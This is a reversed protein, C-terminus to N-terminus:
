LNLEQNRLLHGVTVSREEVLNAITAELDPGPAGEIEVVDELGLMVNVMPYEVMPKKSTSHFRVRCHSVCCCHKCKAGLDDSSQQVVASVKPLVVAGINELQKQVWSLDDWLGSDDVNCLRVCKRPNRKTLRDFNESSNRYKVIVQRILKDKSPTVQDVMGVTWDGEGLESDVKRFYVLDGVALDRENQFWKQQMVLRPVCSDKFVKFWAANRKEVDQLIKNNDASLRVPGSVARSNNKGHRLLNPSILKYLSQNTESRSQTYGYPLNNLTNEVMKCMTQLGMSHIRMTDLGMEKLSSQVTAIRREVLGQREHGGVPCVEFVAGYETHLRYQMDRIDVEMEQMIKLIASDGDCYFLKPWTAECGLRVLAELIGRCDSKDVVQINLAKTTTCAAVLIWNKTEKAKSNRTDREFGPCFVKVPGFLDIQCCYFAPAVTVQNDAVPGMLVKSFKGRKKKCKMCESDIEKFLSFGQIIHVQEQCIRFSSEVGRHGAGHIYSAISYSLPSFRDAIPVKARLNMPGLDKIELDGTEIFNLVDNIRYRSLLLGDVEVAIKDIMPKSNFQKVELTALRFYYQLALQIYVETYGPNSQKLQTLLFNDGVLQCALASLAEVSGSSPQVSAFVVMSKYDFESFRENSSQVQDVDAVTVYLKISSPSLLHGRFTKGAKKLLKACFTIVMTTVRLMVPFSRKTPLLDPDYGSYEAREAILERRTAAFCQVEGDLVCTHGKVIVEPVDPELVLGESYDKSKDPSLKLGAAPTLFEQGVADSTELTMWHNGKEYRSGPVVDDETINSPRTGIDAPNDKGSVHYLNDLDIARRIQVVRNRHWPELRRHDSLIWHLVIESDGCTLQEEVNKALAKRVLWALNSGAMMSQMENRPITMSCLASRGILHDCSWAGTKRKFGIYVTFMLVDEAADVVLIIRAQVGVADVPIKARTYHIGRLKEIMIFNQIAKLRLHDPIPADWSDTCNIM